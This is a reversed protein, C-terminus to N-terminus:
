TFRGNHNFSIAIAATPCPSICMGCGTCREELLFPRRREDLVIAGEPCRGMCGMCIVRNWALCRERHLVATGIRPRGRPVGQPCAGACDGCFTCGGERFSLYPAGALAHGEPHRRIVGEGCAELCFGPCARCTEAAVEGLWPPMPGLFQHEKSLVAGRLFARRSMDPM